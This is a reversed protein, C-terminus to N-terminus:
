KNRREIKKWIQVFNRQKAFASASVWLFLPKELQFCSEILSNISAIHKKDISLSKYRGFHSTKNKINDNKEIKWMSFYLM